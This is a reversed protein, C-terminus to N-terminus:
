AYPKNYEDFSGTVQIKGAATERKALGGGAGQLTYEDFESSYLFTSTLRIATSSAFSPSTTSWTVTGNNTVTFNNTSSDKLLNVNSDELLLLQTGSIATLPSTPPTFAGTYVASGIVVRLNTMYGNIKFSGQNGIYNITDTVFNPASGSSGVSVGNKYLTILGGNKVAAVHVWSGTTMNVSDTILTSIQAQGLALKGTGNMFIDIGGNNGRWFSANGTTSNLYTWFEITFNGTGPNLAVNNPVTLYNSGSFQASGTTTGASLTVEDLEGAISLVGASTIRSAVAIGSPPAATFTWGLNNSVNTSNAGAYWTAGGTASSDQISLYDCSVTGSAKTLTARSGATVASISALFGASGTLTFNTCTVTIGSTLKLGCAVGATVVAVDAITCSALITVTATGNLGITPLSQGAANNITFANTIGRITGTGTYSWSYSAGNIVLPSTSRNILTGGAGFALVYARTGAPPGSCSYYQCSLQFGNLDLTGHYQSTPVTAGPAHTFNRLLRITGNNYGVMACTFCTFGNVINLNLTTGTGIALFAANGTTASTSVSSPLSMDGCYYSTTTGHALTMSLTRTSANIGPLRYTTSLSITTSANLGADDFILTDQPLPFNAVAPIGGSSTAYATSVVTGGTLLSWYVTKAATFTINSNGGADGISTGTLATGTVACNLFSTNFVSYTAATLTMQQGSIVNVGFAYRRTANAPTPLSLTGNVTVSCGSYFGISKEFAGGPATFTLDNFTLSNVTTTAANFTVTTASTTGAGSFIVNYFTTANYCVFSTGGISSCTITSTGANVTLGAVTINIPAVGSLTVASAGFNLTFTGPSTKQIGLASVAFGATTLTGSVLTLTGTTTLSSALTWTGTSAVSFGFLIGIGGLSVSSTNITNSAGTPTVFNVTTGATTTFNTAPSSWNGYVSFSGPGSMTMAGDLGSATFNLCSISGSTTVTFTGTGVNSNVDFFVNDVSTPVSFGGAGNSTDSWNTTTTADWTGTGGVWYRDAM